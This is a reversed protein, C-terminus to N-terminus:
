ASTVELSEASTCVAPDILIVCSQAFPFSYWGLLENEMGWFSKAAVVVTAPKFFQSGGRFSM